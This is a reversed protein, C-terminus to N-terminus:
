SGWKCCRYICVCIYARMYEDAIGEEDGLLSTSVLIGIVQRRRGVKTGEGGAEEEEQLGCEADVDEDHMHAHGGRHSVGHAHDVRDMGDMWREMDM